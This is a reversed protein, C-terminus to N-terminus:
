APAPQYLFPTTTSLRTFGLRGLIPASQDSADAQLFRHGRAAAIRARHAILARYVGRGRWGPATGGGWLGAFDRGLPLEVRAASVPERGAMAVVAAVTDPAEALQALLLSRLRDGGGGFAREHVEAMLDVGAADTVPCLRVGDPLEVRAALDAAEAVMLSETPEPTFRAALLRAALDAPEDHAYLKWEFERGLAAFHRVQAAIAADASDATLGSWLVGNWGGTADAQRVVGNVREVRAGATDAPAERRMQRDFLALVAEQDM